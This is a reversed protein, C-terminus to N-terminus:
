GWFGAHVERAEEELMPGVVEIQKEGRAFIERCPLRLVEENDGQIMGYLGEQSLGYVVRRVNGWFIAGACMPCPETSTYITCKALFDSGYQGSAFRMLNTESHGTSDKGTVVTNEVEMLIQGEQDVLISGFPHNGNKRSKRAIDISYRIYKLDNEKM